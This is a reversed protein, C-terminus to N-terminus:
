PWDDQKIAERFQEEQVERVVRKIQEPDNTATNFENNFQVVVSRSRNDESNTANNVTSQSESIQDVKTQNASFRDMFDSMDVEGSAL